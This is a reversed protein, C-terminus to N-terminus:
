ARAGGDVAGWSFDTAAESQWDAARLMNLLTACCPTRRRGAVCYVSVTRALGLETLPVRRLGNSRAAGVPIIAIGFNAELLALLDDQSAVEHFHRQIVGMAKLRDNLIEAMECETNILLTEPVLDGFEAQSKTALHHKWNVILDFPEDVLPFSELRSWSGDLPGAIALDLEGSKLCAAIESGSGRRLKLQLGPFGRLLERLIMTIPPLAITQSVAVSLPVTDGKRISRAMTQVAQASELCQRMLPLMREGLETLHSLTRERRVLDGGLEIELTRIARTLAPQTVNCREAAQTFNLTESLALFYRIQHMEM